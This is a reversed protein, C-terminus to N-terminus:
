SNTIGGPEQAQFTGAQQGDILVPYEGSQEPVTFQVQTQGAAAIPQSEAIGQIEITHATGDGNVIMNFPQGVDGTLFEPNLRGNEISVEVGQVDLAVVLPTAEGETRAAGAGPVGPTAQGPLPGPSALVMTEGTVGETVTSVIPPEGSEAADEAAQEGPVCGTLAVGLVVTAGAAGRWSRRGRTRRQRVM